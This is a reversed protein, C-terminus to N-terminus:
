MVEYMAEIKYANIPSIKVGCNMTAHIFQTSNIAVGIHLENKFHFELLTGTNIFDTKKVNLTPVNKASLEVDCNTYVVDRLNKGLRREVEIALGYCDLGDLTRGNLQYPVGILDSLYPM